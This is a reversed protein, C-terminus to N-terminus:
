FNILTSLYILLAITTFTTIYLIRGNRLKKADNYKRFHCEIGYIMFAILSFPVVLIFFIAIIFFGGFGQNRNFIFIFLITLFFAAIDFFIVIFSFSAFSIIPKHFQTIPTQSQVENQNLQNAEM